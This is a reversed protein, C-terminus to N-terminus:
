SIQIPATITQCYAYTHSLWHWCLKLM